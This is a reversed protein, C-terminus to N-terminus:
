GKSVPGIGHAAEADRFAKFYDEREINFGRNADGRLDEVEDNSLPQREVPAIKPAAALMAKYHTGNMLNQQATHSDLMVAPIPAMIAARLMEQTPELPVLTYGRTSVPEPEPLALAASLCGIAADTNLIPRTQQQHYVLADLARLAADRLSPTPATM